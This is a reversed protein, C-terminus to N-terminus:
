KTESINLRIFSYEICDGSCGFTNPEKHFIVYGNDNMGEFFNHVKFIEGVGHLEIMIQRFTGKFFDQYVHWECGECDVKLIDISSNSLGTMQLIDQMTSILDHKTAGLGVKYWNVFSPKNKPVITHDLTHIKCLPNLQFIAKEFSWDNNSGISLVNCELAKEIKYADCVWKGGDGMKGIRQEYGCSWSPEYNYQYFIRGSSQKKNSPIQGRQKQKQLRHNKKKRRWQDDSYDFFGYSESVSIGTSKETFSGTTPSFIRGSASGGLYTTPMKVINPFKWSHQVHYLSLIGFIIFCIFILICVLLARIWTALNPM